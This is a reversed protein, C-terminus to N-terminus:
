LRYLRRGSKTISSVSTFNFKKQVPFSVKARVGLRHNDHVRPCQYHSALHLHVCRLSVLRNSLEEGYAGKHMIVRRDDGAPALESATRGRQAVWRIVGHAGQAWREYYPDGCAESGERM